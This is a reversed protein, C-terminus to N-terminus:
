QNYESKIRKKVSDAQARTYVRWRLKGTTTKAVPLNLRKELRYFTARTISLGEKSLEALILGLTIYGFKRM